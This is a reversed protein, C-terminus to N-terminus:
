LKALGSRPPSHLTSLQKGVKSFLENTKECGSPVRCIAFLKMQLDILIMLSSVGTM